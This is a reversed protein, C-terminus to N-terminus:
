PATVAQASRQHFVPEPQAGVAPSPDALLAAAQRRDDDDLPRVTLCWEVLIGNPDEAYLSRCWEHDIEAVDLGHDLWRALCSAYHDEDRATFAVHNVWVPLGQGTSIAPDWGTLTEDHLDWFALMGDGTDYFLHKAWGGESETPGVEVRVLEFGMATTYFRNTAQPDRTALALHHIAM